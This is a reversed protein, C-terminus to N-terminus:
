TPTVWTNDLHRIRLGAVAVVDFRINEWHKRPTGALFHQAARSIRGQMHPSVAGSAKDLDGRQKVEAFVLTQGRSAIIDIEGVPTKYRWARIRYGKFLLYAMAWIEALLGRTYSSDIKM